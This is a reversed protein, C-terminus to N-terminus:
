YQTNFKAGAPKFDIMIRGDVFDNVVSRITRSYLLALGIIIHQGKVAQFYEPNTTLTAFFLVFSVLDFQALLSIAKPTM